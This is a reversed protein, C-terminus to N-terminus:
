HALPQAVVHPLVWDGWSLGDLILRCGASALVCLLAWGLQRGLQSRGLHGLGCSVLSLRALGALAPHVM